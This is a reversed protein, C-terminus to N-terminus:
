KENKMFPFFSSSVAFTIFYWYPLSIGKRKQKPVIRANNSLLLIFDFIRILLSIFM